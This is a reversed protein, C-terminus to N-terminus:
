LLTRWRDKFRGFACQMQNRASRLMQNFVVQKNTTCHNFKKMVYPLLPYSPDCLFLQPVGEHGPLLEKYFLKFIGTFYGKQVDCNALVLADHVSGPWRIEVNTFQGYADCIAQCCILYSMKYSFCDHSNESPQKIPIHTGGVCGIVQPFGFRKLFKRAIESVDDKEISFRILNPAINKPLISCIEHVAVSATGFLNATVRLSVQDKLYYLTTAIRKKVTIVDNRVKTSQKKPM